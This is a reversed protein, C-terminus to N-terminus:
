PTIKSRLQGLTAAVTISRLEPVRYIETFGFRQCLAIVAVNTRLVDIEVRLTDPEQSLALAQRILELAHGKRRQAEAIIVSCRMYLDNSTAPLNPRSELRKILLAYEPGRTRLEEILQLSPAKRKTSTFFGVVNGLEDKMTFNGEPHDALIKAMFAKKEASTRAVPMYTNKTDNAAIMEAIAPLDNEDYPVVTPQMSQLSLISLFTCTYLLKMHHGSNNKM